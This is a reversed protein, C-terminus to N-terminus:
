KSLGCDSARNELSIIPSDLPRVDMTGDDRPATPADATLSKRFNWNQKDNKSM